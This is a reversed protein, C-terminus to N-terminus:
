LPRPNPLSVFKQEVLFELVEAETLDNLEFIDELSYTQLILDSTSLDM